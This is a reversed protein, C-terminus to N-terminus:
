QETMYAVFNAIDEKSGTDFLACVDDYSNTSLWSAVQVSINDLYTSMEMADIGLVKSGAKITEIQGAEFDGEFVNFELSYNFFSDIQIYSKSSKDFIIMDGSCNGDKDYDSFYMINKTSLGKITLTDGADSGYDEIYYKAGKTKTLDISYSDDGAYDTVSVFNTKSGIFSYIDDGSKDTIYGSETNTFKYVDSGAYDEINSLWSKNINYNDNGDYDEIWCDSMNTYKYTDNGNGTAKIGSEYCNSITFKNNGGEDTISLRNGGNLTYTDAATGSDTISFSWLTTKGKSTYTDEGDYDKIYGNIRNQLTYKDNGLGSTTVYFDASGNIAFTNDGGEDKITGEVNNLKYTDNDAGKDDIFICSLESKSNNSYTDIGSLDDIVTNIIQGNFSYKDNGNNDKISVFMTDKISYKDSGGEDSITNVEPVGYVKDFYYTDNEISRDEIVINKVYTTEKTKKDYVGKVTYKDTGQSDIIDGSLSTTITYKDNGFADEISFDEINKINYTDNGYGYSYIDLDVSSSVTYKNNGGYDQIEGVNFGNLNYIDTETGGDVIYACTLKTTGKSIYSDKGSDDNIELNINEGTLTYKDNGLEDIVDLDWTEKISYSDNGNQDLISSKNNSDGKREPNIHELVYKDNGFEDSITTNTVKNTETGILKYSDSGKTDSIEVYNSDNLTYKDNGAADTLELNNSGGSVTYGDNGSYDQLSVSNSGNLIEYKDAGSGDIIQINSSNKINFKDNGKYDVISLKAQPDDMVANFLEYFDNGASDVIWSASHSWLWYKDNGKNDNIQISGNDQAIYEDNGKYDNTIITASDKAEYEDNGSYDYIKMRTENNEAVYEDNGKLDEIHPNSSDSASYKDNGSMELFYDRGSSSAIDYNDKGKEDYVFDDHSKKLNFPQENDYKPALIFDSSDFDGKESYLGNTGIETNQAIIYTQNKLLNSQIEIEQLLPEAFYNKLTTTVTKASGGNSIFITKIILDNGSRVSVNEYNNYYKTANKGSIDVNFTFWASNGGKYELVVNKSTPTVVHDYNEYFKKTAM